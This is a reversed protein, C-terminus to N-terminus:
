MSRCERLRKLGDIGSSATAVIEIDPYDQLLYELGEEVVPYEAIVLIRIVSV